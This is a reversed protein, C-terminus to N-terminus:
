LFTTTMAFVLSSKTITSYLIVGISYNYLTCIYNSYEYSTCATLMSQSLVYITSACNTHVQCVIYYLLAIHVLICSLNRLVYYLETSYMTCPIAFVPIALVNMIFNSPYYLTYVNCIMISGKAPPLTWLPLTYVFFHNNRCNMIFMKSYYHIIHSHHYLQIFYLFSQLLWLFYM